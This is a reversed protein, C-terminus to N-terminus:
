SQQGRRWSHFPDADLHGGPGTRALFAPAGWCPPQAPQTVSALLRQCLDWQEEVLLLPATTGRLTVFSNGEPSPVAAAM